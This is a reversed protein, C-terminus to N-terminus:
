QMIFPEQCRGGESDVEIGMVEAGPWIKQVANEVAAIKVPNKSGVSIKM